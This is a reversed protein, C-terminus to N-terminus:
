RVYSGMGPSRAAVDGILLVGMTKDVTHGDSALPMHVSEFSRWSRDPAWTVHGRRVLPRRATVVERFEGIVESAPVEFECESMLRGTYDRGVARAIEVGVLRYRFDAGGGIVDLILIHGLWEKLDAVEFSKRSPLAQGERREEWLRLFRQISPDESTSSIEDQRNM